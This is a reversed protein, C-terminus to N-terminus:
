PMIVLSNHRSLPAVKSIGASAATLIDRTVKQVQGRVSVPLHGLNKARPPLERRSRPLRYVSRGFLM